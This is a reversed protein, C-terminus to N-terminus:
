RELAPRSLFGVCRTRAPNRPNRGARAAAAARLRSAISRALKDSEVRLFQNSTPYRVVRECDCPGHRFEPRRCNKHEARQERQRECRAASATRIRRGRMGRRGGAANRRRRRRGHRTRDVNRVTREVVAVRKRIRARRRLREDILASRRTRGCTRDRADRLADRYRAGAAKLPTEPRYSKWVFSVSVVGSCVVVIAVSM